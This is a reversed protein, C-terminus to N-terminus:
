TAKYEYVGFEWYKKGPSSPGQWGSSLLEKAIFKNVFGHGVLLVSDNNYSIEKLMNAGSAARRKAARLSEANSSYGFFWLIRFLAAWVNPSLKPSPWNAYPLGMERFIPEIQNIEKIRLVRASEVSRPLDSCVVANCNHSIEIAERSPQHNEIIGASNYSEIWRCLESARLKGFETIDPKGHRLLVIKM